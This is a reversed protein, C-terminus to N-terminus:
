LGIQKIASETLKLEFQILDEITKIEYTKNTKLNDIFCGKEKTFFTIQFYEKTLCFINDLKSLDKQNLDFGEFIVKEKAKYYEKLVVDQFHKQNFEFNFGDDFYDEIKPEEFFNGEDDCTVLMGLNLPQKLFQAYSMVKGMYDVQCNLFDSQDEFYGVPKDFQLVFDVMSILKM